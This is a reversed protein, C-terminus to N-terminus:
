EWYAITRKQVVTAKQSQMGKEWYSLQTQNSTWNHYKDRTLYNYELNLTLVCEEHDFVKQRESVVESQENYTYENIYTIGAVPNHLTKKSVRRHDDYDYSLISYGEKETMRGQLLYGYRDYQREQLDPNEVQGDQSFHLFQDESVANETVVEQVPGQFGMNRADKYYAGEVVYLVRIEHSGNDKDAVSLKISGYDDMYVWANDHPTMTDYEQTLKNKFYLTNHELMKETRYPGVTVYASTVLRSDANVSVMLKAHLGYYKGRFYYDEGNDSQGWPTWECAILELSVSDVPGELAVGMLQLSRPDGQASLRLVLLLLLPILVIRKM